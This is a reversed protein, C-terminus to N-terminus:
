RGGGSEANPHHPTVVQGPQVAAPTVTGSVRDLMPNADSATSSYGQAAMPRATQQGSEFPDAAVPAQGLESSQPRMGGDSGHANTDYISSASWGPIGTSEIPQDSNIAMWHGGSSILRGSSSGDPPGAASAKEHDMKGRDRREQQIARRRIVAPDASTVAALLRAAVELQARGIRRLRWAEDPATGPSSAATATDLAADLTALLEGVLARGASDM